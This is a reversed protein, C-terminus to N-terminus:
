ITESVTTYFTYFTYVESPIIFILNNTESLKTTPTIALTLPQFLAINKQIFDLYGNKSHAQRDDSLPMMLIYFMRGHAGTSYGFGGTREYLTKLDQILPVIMTSTRGAAIKKSVLLDKVFKGPKVDSRIIRTEVDTLYPEGESKGHTMRSGSKVGTPTAIKVDAKVEVIKVPLTRPVLVRSVLRTVPVPKIFSKMVQIQQPTPYEPTARQQTASKSSSRRASGGLQGEM